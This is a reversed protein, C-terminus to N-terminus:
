HRTNQEGDVKAKCLLQFSREALVKRREWFERDTLCTTRKKGEPKPKALYLEFPNGSM